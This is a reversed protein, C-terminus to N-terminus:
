IGAALKTSGLTQIAEALTLLAAGLATGPVPSGGISNMAGALTTIAAVTPTAMVLAQAGANGIAVKGCINVQDATVEIWCKGSVPSIIIKDAGNKIQIRPKGNLTVTLLGKGRDITVGTDNGVLIAAVDEKCFVKSRKTADPGTSFMATEGGAMAGLVDKCRSDRGGVAMGTFGGAPLTVVEAKGNADPALPLGVFGVGFAIPITGLDERIPPDASEDVDLTVHCVPGADTMESAGATYLDAEAM